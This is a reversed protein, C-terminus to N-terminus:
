PWHVLGFSRPGKQLVHVRGHLATARSLTLESQREGNVRVAGSSLLQKAQGGSTAFGLATLASPVSCTAADGEVAFVPLERALTTLAEASLSQPDAREFLL